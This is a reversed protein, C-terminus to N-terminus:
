TDVLRFWAFILSNIARDRLHGQGEFSASEKTCFRIHFVHLSESGVFLLCSPSFNCRFLNRLWKISLGETIFKDLRTPDQLAVIRLPSSIGLFPPSSLYVLAPTGILARCFSLVSSATFAPSSPSM